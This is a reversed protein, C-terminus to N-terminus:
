NLAVCDKSLVGNEEGCLWEMKQAVRLYEGVKGHKSLALAHVQFLVPSREACTVEGYEWFEVVLVTRLGQTVNSVRHWELAPFIYADGPHTSPGIGSSTTHPRVTDILHSFHEQMENLSCCSGPYMRVQLEGGTFPASGLMVSMTYVSGGDRHWGLGGSSGYELVEACRLTLNGRGKNGVLNRPWKAAEVAKQAAGKLRAYVGPLLREMFYQVYHGTHGAELSSGLGFNRKMRAAHVEQNVCDRLALIQEIQQKGLVGSLGVGGVRQATKAMSSIKIPPHSTTSIDQSQYRQAMCLRVQQETSSIRCYKNYRNLLKNQEVSLLHIAALTEPM